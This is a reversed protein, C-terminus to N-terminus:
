YRKGKTTTRAVGVSDMMYCARYWDLFSSIGNQIDTTPKYNFDKELGLTDAWTREVDGAQM